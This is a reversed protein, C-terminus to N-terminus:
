GSRTRAWALAGPAMGKLKPVEALEAVLLPTDTPLHDKLAHYVASRHQDSDVFALGPRLPFLERWPGEADAPLDHGDLYALYLLAPEATGHANLRQVRGATTSSRAIACRRSGCVPRGRHRRTRRAATAM